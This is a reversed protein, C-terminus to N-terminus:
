KAKVKDEVVKADELIVEYKYGAGFDKDIVVKGTVVVIKDAGSVTTDSTTVTLDSNAGTGTGDQIHLWNRGLIGANFKVVKGRVVVTKGKLSEKKAFIEAVQLGGDAKSINGVVVKQPEKGKSGHMSGHPNPATAGGPGIPALPSQLIPGSQPLGGASKGAATKGAGAGALNMQSVFLISPFTRKLTNSTFNSMKMGGSYEISDGVAVKTEPGALWKSQGNELFEVYTYGGSNMTHVVKANSTASPPSMQALSLTSSGSCVFMAALILKVM